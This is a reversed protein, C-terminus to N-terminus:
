GRGEFFRDIFGALEKLQGDMEEIRELVNTAPTVPYVRRLSNSIKYRVRWLQLISDSSLVLDRYEPNDSRLTFRDGEVQDIRKCLIGDQTVIAYIEGPAAETLNFIQYCLIYDNPQITEEMSSGEVQIAIHTRGKLDIFPLSLVPLDAWYSSDQYHSPYGAAARADLVSVLPNGETDVVEIIPADTSTAPTVTAEQLQDADFLMSGKGHLLWNSSINFKEFLLSVTGLSVPKSESEMNYVHQVTVNLVEAMKKVDFGLSFRVQKIRSDKKVSELESM